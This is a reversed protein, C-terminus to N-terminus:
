YIETSPNQKHNHHAANIRSGLPGVWVRETETLHAMVSIVLDCFRIVCSVKKKEVM